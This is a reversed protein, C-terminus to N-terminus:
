TTATHKVNQPSILNNESPSCCKVNKSAIYSLELKGKGEDISATIQKKTRAIRTLLFHYRMTTKIQLKRFIITNLM